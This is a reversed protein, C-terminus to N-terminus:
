YMEGSLWDSELSKCTACLGDEVIEELKLCIACYDKVM